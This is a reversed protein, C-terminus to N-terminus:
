VARVPKAPTNRIPKVPARTNLAAVPTNAAMTSAVEGYQFRIPWKLVRSMPRDNQISSVSHARKSAWRGLRGVPWTRSHIHIQQADIASATSDFPRTPRIRGPATSTSYVSIARSQATQFRKCRIPPRITNKAIAVGQNTSTCCRLGSNRLKKKM